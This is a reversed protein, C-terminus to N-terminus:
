QGVKRRDVLDIENANWYLKLMKRCERGMESPKELQHTLFTDLPVRAVKKFRVNAEREKQHAEEEYKQFTGMMMHLNAKMTKSLERDTMFVVIDMVKSNVVDISPVHKERIM